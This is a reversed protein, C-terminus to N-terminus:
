RFFDLITKHGVLYGVALASSVLAGLLGPLIINQGALALGGVRTLPLIPPENVSHLKGYIGIGSNFSYRGLTLGTATDVPELDDNLEPCAALLHRRMTEAAQKKGDYYAPSRGTRWAAVAEAPMLTVASVPWRGNHGPGGSLFIVPRASDLWDNLDDTPGIFLQRDALWNSSTHGFLMFPPPTEKLSLLRRVLVQRLSGEPLLGPLAAPSGSYLCLGCDMEGASGDSDTFAVSQVANAKDTGIATATRGTLIQVGAASLAKEFSKILSLGGGFFSHGGDLYPVNVKSFQAFSAESPRVGYLLCRFGVVAEWKHSVGLSRLAAALTPGDNYLPKPDFFDLAPNLYPSSNFDDWALRFFKDMAQGNPIFARFDDYRRPLLIDGDPFRLIEGGPDALPRPHLGQTLLGLRDLYRYLVGSESLGGAYHFGTEFSLGRRSFGQALPGLRPSKEILTVGHGLKRLILAAGLGSFGGGIVVTKM